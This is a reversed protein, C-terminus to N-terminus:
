WWLKACAGSASGSFRADVLLRAWVEREATCGAPTKGHVHRKEGAERGLATKVDEAALAEANHRAYGHGVYRDSLNKWLQQAREGRSRDAEGGNMADELFDFFSM